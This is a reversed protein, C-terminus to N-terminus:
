TAEKNKIAALSNFVSKLGGYSERYIDFMENYIGSNEQQPEYVKKIRVIRDATDALNNSDGLARLALALDGLLESETSEPVLFNKGTIDAKIQNWIDSRAPGGTIRLESIKAGNESMVEIVDRMAYGISELVARVMESRGHNLTLGIFAGRADPNWLPAREGTLYPLFLLKGSGSPVGTTEDLFEECDLHGYGFTNIIWDQARGSTSIIGSVNFWPEIIHGYGMLRPDTIYNETCLNIGESTGARDCARGPYVTATGLQSVIFDPGAAVIPLGEPLGSEISGSTTVKGIIEGPKVFGPFKSNDLGLKELLKKSWFYKEFHSGPLITVAEGTLWFTVSEPCSLFHRTKEYVDPKNKALWLAKPLYFTPDLYFDQIKEITASEETGRRDMWTMVPNLFEGSIDVPVLTPGNGSVAVARISKPVGDVALLETSIEKFAIKWQAADAEFYNTNATQIMNLTRSSLSIFDGEESLLAGKLVTTGIDFVLIM